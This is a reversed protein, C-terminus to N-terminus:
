VQMAPPLVLVFSLGQPPEEFLKLLANQAEHTVSLTQILFTQETGHIPRLQAASIILKVEDVGVRDYSFSTVVLQPDATYQLPAACRILTAHHKM